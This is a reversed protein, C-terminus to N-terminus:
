LKEESTIDRWSFLSSIFNFNIPLIKKDTIIYYLALKKVTCLAIKNIVYSVPMISINFINFFDGLVKQFFWEIQKIKQCPKLDKVYLWLEDEAVFVLM